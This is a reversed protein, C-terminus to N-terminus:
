DKVTVVDNTREASNPVLLTIDGQLCHTGLNLGKKGRAVM